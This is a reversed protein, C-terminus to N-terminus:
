FRLRPNVKSFLERCPHSNALSASVDAADKESFEITYPAKLTEHGAILAVAVIERRPAANIDKSLTSESTGASSSTFTTSFGFARESPDVDAQHEVNATSILDARYGRGDAATILFKGPDYVKIQQRSRLDKNKTKMTQFEAEKPWLWETPIHVVLVLFRKGDKPELPGGHTGLGGEVQDTEFYGIPELVPRHVVTQGDAPQSDSSSRVAASDADSTMSGQYVIFVVFSLCATAAIIMVAMRMRRWRAHRRQSSTGRRQPAPKTRGYDETLAPMASNKPPPAIPPKQVVDNSQNLPVPPGASVWGEHQVLRWSKLDRSIQHNARLKGAAVLERLQEKTAPGIIRGNELRIHWFETM